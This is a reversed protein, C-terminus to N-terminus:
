GSILGAAPRAAASFLVLGPVPCGFGGRRFSFALVSLAKRCFLFGVQNKSRHPRLSGRGRPPCCDWPGPSGGTVRTVPPKQSNHQRPSAPDAFSGDSAVAYHSSRKGRRVTW